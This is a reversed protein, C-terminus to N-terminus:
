KEARKYELLEWYIKNEIGGRCRIIGVSESYWIHVTYSFQVTGGVSNVVARIHWAPVQLPTGYDTYEQVSYTISVKRTWGM